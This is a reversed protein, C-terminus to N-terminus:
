SVAATPSPAWLHQLAYARYPRWRQSLREAVRPSGDFGLSTLSRRVGADAALFADPDRLERMAVYGATWEGIGPLARLARDVEARDVSGDLVLEGGEVARALGVLANARTLPMGLSRPDIRSLAPASPFVHTVSGVPEGLPEGHDAVLRGALTRAAALSIQQGLVARVATECGDVSGAVRRGPAARVLGGVVPQTGLRESVAVPDSDLDMLRRSRSVAPGFDRLDELRLTAMVHDPGPRLEVVGFGRPLRLSRRYAGDAVEEIGAVTRAALFSILADGDFPARAALRVTLGSGGAGPSRRRATRLQTPTMAFVDRVTANFQRVSSFGATLAVEAVTLETRELLVRATQARSARALALPGAGLAESLCRHLHRESYGLGRALGGVGGRDVVGDSILRMARGILDGRLDWEPSGPSADPRCRKCARFGADQAGAATAFFRVNRRQPTRAPCSPRCYIGTSTVAIVFWGDFRGDKTEIARYCDEFGLM